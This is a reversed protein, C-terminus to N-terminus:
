KRPCYYHTGASDIRVGYLTTTGTFGGGTTFTWFGWKTTIAPGKKGPSVYPRYKQPGSCGGLTCHAQRGPDPFAQVVKRYNGIGDKYAQNKASYPVGEGTPCEPKVDDKKDSKKTRVCGIHSWSYLGQRGPTVTTVVVQYAGKAPVVFTILGSRSQKLPRRKIDDFEKGEYVLVWPTFANSAVEIRLTQGKAMNPFTERTYYRGSRKRRVGTSDRKLMVTTEVKDTEEWGKPCEAAEARDASLLAFGLGALMATFAFQRFERIPEM